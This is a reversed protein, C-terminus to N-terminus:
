RSPRLPTGLDNFRDEVYLINPNVTFGTPSFTFLGAQGGVVYDEGANLAITASLLHYQFHGQVPDGPLVFVDALLTGGSTWPGVETAGPVVLGDTFYGLSNVTVANVVHFEYGMTGDWLQPPNSTITWEVAPDIPGASASAPIALWALGALAFGVLSLGVRKM